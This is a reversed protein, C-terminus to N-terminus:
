NLQTASLEREFRFLLISFFFLCILPGATSARAWCSGILLHVFIQAWSCVDSLPKNTQISLLHCQVDVQSSSALQSHFKDHQHIKLYVEDLVWVTSPFLHNMPHCASSPFFSLILFLKCYPFCWCIFAWRCSTYAERLPSWSTCAVGADCNSTMRLLRGAAASPQAVM